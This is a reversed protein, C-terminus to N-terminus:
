PEPVANPAPAPPSISVRATEAVPAAARVPTTVPRVPEDPELLAQKVIQRPDFRRPDLKRWDIDDAEPGIEEKIRQQSSTIFAKAQRVLAALKSAYFPLRQPGIIFAAIVGIILIKEPTLGFM